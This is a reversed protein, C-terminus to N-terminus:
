AANRMAGVERLTTLVLEPDVDAQIVAEGVGKLLIFHINGDFTKKDHLMDAYLAEADWTQNPALEHLSTPLGARAIHQRVRDALGPGCLALKESLICASVLGVAVANGHTFQGFGARTEYSHAFTHGLNVLARKGKDLEDESVIDAKTECGMRIVEVLTTEDRAIINDVNSELWAFETEGRLLGYKIVEAYGSRFEDHPLTSLLSVDNLVIRPQLFTGVLNKGHATNIGNKGGVASDVQSMLTTPIQIFEIGRMILASAFGAVDGVVGGGFAIVVSNRDVGDGLMANLLAEVGSFSKTKEGGRIPYVDYRYTMEGLAPGFTDMYRSIVPQDSVVAVRRGAVIDNLYDKANALLDPGICIDYSREALDVGVTAQIPSADATLETEDSGDLQYITNQGEGLQIIDGGTIGRRISRIFKNAVGHSVVLNIVGDDPLSNLFAELRASFQAGSEGGPPHFRMPDELRLRGLEPYSKAVEDWGYTGSIEGLNFDNLREDVVIEDADLGLISAIIQATQQARLLPSVYMRFARDRLVSVLRNGVRHAQKIGKDTLPSNQQGQIRGIRNWESEGHRILLLTNM